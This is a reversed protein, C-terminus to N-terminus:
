RPGQTNQAASKAAAVLVDAAEADTLGPGRALTSWTSVDLAHAILGALHRRGEPGFTPWGESLAAPLAALSDTLPRLARGIAPIESHARILAAIPPDTARYWAYLARLATRLREPPQREAFWARMDPLPATELVTAVGADLLAAEDPFHRYVTLREVGARAAIASITARAPGVDGYIALAARVIRRRTEAQHEARKRLRYRRTQRPPAALASM